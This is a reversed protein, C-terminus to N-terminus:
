FCLAFNVFVGSSIRYIFLAISILMIIVSVVSKEKSQMNSLSSPLM